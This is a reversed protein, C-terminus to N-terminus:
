APEPWFCGGPEERCRQKRVVALDVVNKAKRSRRKPAKSSVAVSTMLVAESLDRMVLALIRGPDDVQGMRIRLCITLARLVEASALGPDATVADHDHCTQLLEKALNIYEKM